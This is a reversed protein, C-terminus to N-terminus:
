GDESLIEIRLASGLLRVWEKKARALSEALLEENHTLYYDALAEAIEVKSARLASSVVEMLQSADSRSLTPSVGQHPGKARLLDCAFTYPYRNSARRPDEPNQAAWEQYMELFTLGDSEGGVVTGLKRLDIHGAFHVELEGEDTLHESNAGELREWSPRAEMLFKGLRFGSVTTDEPLLTDRQLALKEFIEGLEDDTAGALTVVLSEQGDVVKQEINIERM